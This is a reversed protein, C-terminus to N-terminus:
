FGYSDMRDAAAEQMDSLVHAYRRLTMAPDKHGLIRSAVHVPVGARLMLTAATHRLDHFRVDPLGANTLDRKLDKHVATHSLVNGVTNPFVLEPDRWRRAAAREELQAKRHRKLSAMAKEPLRITRAEGNKPVGWEAGNTTSVSREVTLLRADWDVDKWKLAKIEGHRPGVTVALRYFAERRTGKTAEVLAAAQPETLARMKHGREKPRKVGSAANKAAIEWSVARNLAASLVAMHHSITSSKLGEAIARAKYGEVHAARLKAVKVSGLAPILRKHAMAEYKRYTSPALENEKSELWTQLYEAVTVRDADFAMPSRGDRAAIAAALKKAVEGRSKGYITKRKQGEPTWVFYRASWRGDKRKSITGEGNGRNRGAM